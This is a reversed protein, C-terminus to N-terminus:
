FVPASHVKGECTGFGIKEGAEGCSGRIVVEDGDKLFKRTDMGALQIEQKGAQTMELMSGLDSRDESKGSITGSGLLDGVAMPCGGSSHHALMQPFSWLLNKGSVKSITTTAGEPTTLDVELRIDFVTAPESGKLHPLVETVNDLTKVRFPELADALVVWASVTTGFNKANFPGLPVYEWTQIDRASWDNMLVYGFIHSEADAIRIPTGLANGKCLFCGLELEIDLRRCPGFIPIKPNAAPDLLIQGNPRTIPTGSVVVSSARGHYGVPLHTYNPQLANAPGRFMTGVNFAHNIGAFFDTYDGIQMPLQTKTDEKNLLAATRLEENDRLVGAHKGTESFVDQLYARVERHVPRGLAAFANLTPESFVDIHKEFSSGAFGNRQSFALLDLVHDGIAVAPRKRDRSERSTIIGFPINSLSFDSDAPIALWSKIPAM